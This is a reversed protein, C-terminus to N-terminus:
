LKDTVSIPASPTLFGNRITHLHWAPMVDAYLIQFNQRPPDPRGEAKGTETGVEWAGYPPRVPRHQNTPVSMNSAIEIGGTALDPPEISCAMSRM